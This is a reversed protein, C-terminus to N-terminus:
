PLPGLPYITLKKQFFHFSGNNINFYKLQFLRSRNYSRFHSKMAYKQLMIIQSHLLMFIYWRDHSVYVKISIAYLVNGPTIGVISGGGGQTIAIGPTIGM